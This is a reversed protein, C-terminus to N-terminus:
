NSTCSHFVVDHLILATTLCNCRCNCFLRVAQVLSQSEFLPPSGMQLSASVFPFPKLLPRLPAHKSTLFSFPTPWCSRHLPSSRFALCICPRAVDTFLSQFNLCPPTNWRCSRLFLHPPPRIDPKSAPRANYSTGNNMQHSGSATPQAAHVNTTLLLPQVGSTHSVTHTHTHASAQSPHQPHTCRFEPSDLKILKLRLM